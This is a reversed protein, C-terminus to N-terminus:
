NQQRNLLIRTNFLNYQEYGCIIYKDILEENMIFELKKFSFLEEIESLEIECINNEGQRFSSTITQKIEQEQEPLRTILKQLVSNIISKTYDYFNNIKNDIIYKLNFGITELKNKKFYNIPFNNYLGGDIYLCDNYKIPKFIFPVCMSIKIATKISMNPNNDINFYDENNTTLNSSNFIINKGTIKCFEIFTIDNKNFKKTLVEEILEDLFNNDILGYNEFINIINDLRIKTKNKSKYYFSKLITIIDDIKYDLSLFLCILAGASCGLFNKFNKFNKFEKEYSKLAGLLGFTKFAGGSIVINSYM